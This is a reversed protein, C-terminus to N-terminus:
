SYARKPSFKLSNAPRYKILKKMPPRKDSIKPALFTKPIDIPPIAMNLNSNSNHLSWGYVLYTSIAFKQCETQRKQRHKSLEAM